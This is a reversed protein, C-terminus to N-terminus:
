EVPSKRGAGRSEQAAAPQSQRRPFSVSYTEQHRFGSDGDDRQIFGERGRAAAPAGEELGKFFGGDESEGANRKFNLCAFCECKEADIARAFGRQQTNEGRKEEGSAAGRADGAFIGRAICSGDAAVEAIMGARIVPKVRAESAAFVQAEEALQIMKGAARRVEADGLEGFLELEGINEVALRAGEGGAGNLAETQGAGQKMLGAHQEEVLGRATEVGDGGHIKAAEEFRL